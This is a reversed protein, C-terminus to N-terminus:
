VRSVLCSVRSVLCSVRSVLCSVRSVLCSVRSVLCSVRSDHPGQQHLLDCHIFQRRKPCAPMLVLMASWAEAFSEEGAPSSALRARWGRTRRGPLDDAVHLLWARWSPSPASAEAQPLGFGAAASLDAVRAADLAALLSPLVRRLEAGSLSDLFTGVRSWEGQALFQLDGLGAGFRSTLFAGVQLQHQGYVPRLAGHPTARCRGHLM